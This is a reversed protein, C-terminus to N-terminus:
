DDDRNGGAADPAERRPARRRGLRGLLTAARTEGSQDRRLLADVAASRVVAGQRAYAEHNAEIEGPDYLYNVMLGFSERLGRPSPNGLWNIRELRAGNGLHFRAVPDTPRRDGEGGTLYEACLRMLPAKLAAAAAADEQWGPSALLAHFVGKAGAARGAAALIAPREDALLLGHAGAAIRRELWRRFGPVPSLTAFRRLAPMEAQLREVVQKILLNGFSVGRL